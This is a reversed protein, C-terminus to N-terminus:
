SALNFNGYISVYSMCHIGDDVHIIRRGDAMFSALGIGVIDVVLVHRIDILGQVGLSAETGSIGNAMNDATTDNLRGITRLALINEKDVGVNDNKIEETRCIIGISM